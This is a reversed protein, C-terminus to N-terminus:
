SHRPLQIDSTKMSRPATTRLMAPDHPRSRNDAFPTQPLSSRAMLSVASSPCTWVLGAVCYRFSYPTSLRTVNWLVVLESTSATRTPRDGMPLQLRWIGRRLGTPLTRRGANVACVYTGTEGLVAVRQLCCALFPPRLVMPYERCVGGLRPHCCGPFRPVDELRHVGSDANRPPQPHRRVDPVSWLILPFRACDLSLLSYGCLHCM